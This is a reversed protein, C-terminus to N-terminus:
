CNLCRSIHLSDRFLYKKRYLAIRAIALPFSLSLSKEHPSRTKAVKGM